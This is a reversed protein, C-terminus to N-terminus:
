THPKREAAPPESATADRCAALTTARVQVPVGSGPPPCHRATSLFMTCRRTRRREPTGAARMARAIPRVAQEEGVLSSSSCSRTACPLAAGASDGCTESGAPPSVMGTGPDTRARTAVPSRTAACTSFGGDSSSPRTSPVLQLASSETGRGAPAPTAEAACSPVTTTGCPSPTTNTEGSPPTRSSEPRPGTEAAARVRSPRRSVPVGSPSITTRSASPASCCRM